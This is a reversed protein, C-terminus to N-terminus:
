AAKTGLDSYWTCLTDMMRVAKRTLQTLRSGSNQTFYTFRDRVSENFCFTAGLGFKGKRSVM